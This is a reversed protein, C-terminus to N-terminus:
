DDCGADINGLEGGRRIAQEGYRKRLERIATYLREAREDPADWLSLQRAESLGSVGVGILRVAQGEWVRDFLTCAIAYFTAAEDTPQPLTIQRTVTTFDAWRIKLKVTTAMLQRQRLAAAVDETQELLTQRLLAADTIDRVFTTEQSISKREHEIVIPRDDLGRAHLSLEQGHKGFRRVLDREPWRAIDGITHIGLARLREATKPGVGWLADAPLPALFAAEEGPPVILLARPPADGRMAAKGVNNAIKAVLKNTAVGLSAPLGLESHIAHQLEGALAAVDGPQNTVDLFAEDISIQEVLPTVRRLIAMVRQSMAAYERHRVPVIILTPCLRLAQSMPMASHIGLRRAPYSCSAVVGRTEPRGGVAFPKGILSPNRLEEVACFFADLDLHIIKRTSM